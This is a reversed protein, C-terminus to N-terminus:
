SRELRGNQTAATNYLNEFKQKHKLEQYAMQILIQKTEGDPQLSALGKYTLHANLERHAAVLYVESSNMDKQIDPAVIFEGIKNEAEEDTRMLPFSSRGERYGMLFEFHIKEEEAILKLVEKVVPDEVKRRLDSYFEYASLENQIMKELLFSLKQNEM